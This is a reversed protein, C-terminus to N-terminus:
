ISVVFVMRIKDKINYLIKGVSVPAFASIRVYQRLITAGKGDPDLFKKLNKYKVLYVVM